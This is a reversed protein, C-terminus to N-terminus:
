LDKMERSIYDAAQLGSLMAFTLNYGGCEGNVDLLEGTIFLGPYRRCEFSEINIEKVSVGGATVQAKEYDTYVMPTFRMKKILSTLRNLVKETIEGSLIHKDLKLRKLLYEGFKVPFLGELVAILTKEPMKDCQKKIYLKLEDWSMYPLTDIQLCEKREAESFFAFLCSLNMVAIGSLSDENIQLQGSEKKVLAGSKRLSIDAFLRVGRAIRLDKDEVYAPTLVPYVKEQSLGLKKTIKYGSKSGGLKPAAMGGMCLIVREAQYNKSSVEPKQVVDVIYRSDRRGKECVSDHTVACVETEFAFEVGMNLCGSYLINTVQRAQNSVPYYYGDKEYMLIGAEELFSIVEEFSHRDAFETVFSECRSYFREGCFSKNTLNCKGNGAASLKRGPIKEKEIVLIHRQRNRTALAYAAILGSAGAGVIIVDYIVIKEEIRSYINLYNRFEKNWFTLQVFTVFIHKCSKVPIIRWLAIYLKKM